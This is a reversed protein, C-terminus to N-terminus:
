CAKAVETPQNGSTQLARDVLEALDMATLQEEAAIGKIGDEFMQLCFPCATALVSAGTQLTERAREQNIRTGITEEIWARGGGGGCCFSEGRSRGMERFGAGGVASALARPPEYVDNHRGLYCPDHFTLSELQPANLKLKGDALLAALFQSHHIVEFRGDFDPYENKFTNYCHPCTTIITKVAYRQLIKINKKAITQFLFENGIRRAPDGCCSEEGGLVFFEIGTNQLIRAMAASVRMNRDVLAGSCGVWFLLAGGGTKSLENLTLNKAWDTRMYPTGSWPHGRKQLSMMTLQATEPLKGKVMVQHRRLEVIKTMPEVFIPCQHHCAGCTTCSWIEDESINEGVLPASGAGNGTPLRFPGATEREMQSKLKQVITRPSLPKGTCAAPCSAHCRGCRVCADSDLLDKWAVDGLTGAGLMRKDKFDAIAKLAGTRGQRSFFVNVPGLFIHSQTSWGVCYAIFSFALVMHTSWTIAHLTRLTQGDLGRFPLAVLWGGVSWPAWDPHQDLETAAIRFGQVLFGTVLIVFIFALAIDFARNSELRAARVLYRRAAAMLIGIIAALGFVNLVLKYALYFNGQLIRVRFDEHVMVLLTGIFLIAFGWFILLHMVGAYPERLIRAQGLAHIVTKWLRVPTDSLKEPPKGTGWRKIRAYLGLAMLAIAVIALPYVVWGWTINWYIERTPM